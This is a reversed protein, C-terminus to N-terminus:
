LQSTLEQQKENWRQPPVRQKAIGLFYFMM